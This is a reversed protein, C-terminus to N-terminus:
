GLFDRGEPPVLKPLNVTHPINAQEVQEMACSFLKKWTDNPM